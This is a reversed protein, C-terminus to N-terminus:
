PCSVETSNLSKGWKVESGLMLHLYKALVQNPSSKAKDRPSSEFDAGRGGAYVCHLHECLSGGEGRQPSARRGLEGRLERGM